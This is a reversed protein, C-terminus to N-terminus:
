DPRFDNIGLVAIGPMLHALRENQIHIPIEYGLEAGLSDAHVQSGLEGDRDCEYIFTETFVELGIIEM